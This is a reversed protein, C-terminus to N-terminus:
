RGCRSPRPICLCSPAKPAEASTLDSTKPYSITWSERMLSAATWSSTRGRTSSSTSRTSSSRPLRASTTRTARSTWRAKEPFGACDCRGRLRTKAKWIRTRRGGGVPLAQLLLRCCPCTLAEQLGDCDASHSLRSRVLRASSRQGVVKAKAAQTPEEVDPRTSEEAAVATPEEAEQVGDRGELESHPPEKILLRRNSKLERHSATKLLRRERKTSPVGAKSSMSNQHRLLRSSPRSPLAGVGDVDLGSTIEPLPDAALQMTRLYRRKGGLPRLEKPIVLPPDM